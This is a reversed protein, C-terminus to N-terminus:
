FKSFCYNSLADLFENLHPKGNKFLKQQFKIVNPDKSEWAMNIAIEIQQRVEDATIGRKDAIEKIMEDYKKNTM